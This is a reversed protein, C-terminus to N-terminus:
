KYGRRVADVWVNFAAAVDRLPMTDNYAIPVAGYKKSFFRVMSTHAGSNYMEDYSGLMEALHGNVCRTGDSKAFINKCLCEPHLKRLSAAWPAAGPAITPLANLDAALRDAGADPMTSLDLDTDTDRTMPTEKSAM